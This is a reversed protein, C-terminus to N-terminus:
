CDPSSPPWMDSPWFNALNELCWDQVIKAKHGPASNQQWCYNGSPYTADLWPKVVKEMVDLYEKAGARLGQPFWYPPMAKGDSTVVGLMMASAPHKTQNIPPVEDVAFAIYRDNRANRSQDVTWNKKDSFVLVTSPNKKKLWSLIKKGHVERNVKSTETFLQRRRKFYSHMGLMGIARAITRRSVEFDVSFKRMSRTPDEEITSTLSTLFEKVIIKNQEGSGPKRALTEGEKVKAKVTYVLTKGCGVISCIENVSVQAQLL